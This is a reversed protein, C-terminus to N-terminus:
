KKLEWLYYYLPSLHAFGKLLDDLIQTSYLPTFDNHVSVIYVNKRRYWEQLPKPIKPLPIQDQIEGSLTFTNQKELFLIAKYFDEPDDTIRKRLRNMTKESIHYLGMGYRYWASTIEFFFAPADQWDPVPRKFMVWVNTKYPSADLPSDDAHHINSITKNVAPEVELGPDICLMWDSMDTVLKKLPALVHDQYYPRHKEFWAHNNNESLSTLFQILGSSFGHFRTEGLGENKLLLTEASPHYKSRKLM